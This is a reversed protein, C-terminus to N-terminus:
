LTNILFIVEFLLLAAGVLVGLFLYSFCAIAAQDKM